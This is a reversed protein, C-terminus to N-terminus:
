DDRARTKKIAGPSKSCKSKGAFFFNGLDVFGFSAQIQIVM